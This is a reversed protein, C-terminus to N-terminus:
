TKKGGEGKEKPRPGYKLMYFVFIGGIITAIWVPAFRELIGLWILHFGFFFILGWFLRNGWTM